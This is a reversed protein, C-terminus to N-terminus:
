AKSYVQLWLFISDKTNPADEFFLITEVLDSISCNLGLPSYLNTIHWLWTANGCVVDAIEWKRYGGGRGHQILDSPIDGALAGILHYRNRIGFRHVKRETARFVSLVDPLGADGQAVSHTYHDGTKRM